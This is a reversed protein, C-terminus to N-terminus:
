MVAFNIFFSINKNFLNMTPCTKTVVNRRSDFYNGRTSLYIQYRVIFFRESSKNIVNNNQNKIIKSFSNKETLYRNGFTPM